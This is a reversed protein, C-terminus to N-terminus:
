GLCYLWHYFLWCCGGSPNFRSCNKCFCGISILLLVIFLLYCIVFLLYCIVFLLYCIVFLLYCIEGKGRGGEYRWIISGRLLKLCSALFM